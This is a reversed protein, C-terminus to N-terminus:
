VQWGLFRDSDEEKEKNNSIKTTAILCGNSILKQLNNLKIAETKKKRKTKTKIEESIFHFHIFSFINNEYNYKEGM